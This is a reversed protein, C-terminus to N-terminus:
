LNAGRGSEWCSVAKDTVGLREALARQTLGKAELAVLGSADGVVSLADHSVIVVEVVELLQELEDFSSLRRSFVSAEGLKLM